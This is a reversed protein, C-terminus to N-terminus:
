QKKDWPFEYKLNYEKRLFEMEPKLGDPIYVGKEKRECYAVYEKEGPTWIREAGPAKKGKRLARCIDGVQKKFEDLPRFAEVDVALFFHGLEIPVKKGDRVGSVASMFNAASLCSSLIEVIAAFGYGKYGALEEGAGGIPLCCATGEVFGKLATATDTVCHGENDLVWGEPLKKGNRHYMEIKGRQVASTACDLSFPFEEDSPFAFVLPNTGLMPEVCNTPAVSPRANTGCMGILGQEAAMTTYYGAIGFHTSNRCVVMGLGNKKAKDIAMQMCRKAIVHGMGNHGDVVATTPTERVIEFNTKPNLIGNRIRDIYILKLRQIGHTDLGRKDAAILVEACVKADEEPVGAGILADAM